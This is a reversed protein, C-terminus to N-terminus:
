CNRILSLGRRNTWVTHFGKRQFESDIGLQHQRTHDNFTHVEIVSPPLDFGLLDIEAGEIDVKAFDFQFRDGTIMEPRLVDNIAVCNWDNVKINRLLRAYRTEDPEIAIVKKAGLSFFFYATEGCGAGADLIVENHAIPPKYFRRWRPYENTLCMFHHFSLWMDAHPLQVVVDTEAVRKGGLSKFRAVTKLYTLPGYMRSPSGKVIPLPLPLLRGTDENVVHSWRALKVESVFPLIERSFVVM